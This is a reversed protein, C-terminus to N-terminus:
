RKYLYTFFRELTRLIELFVFLDMGFLMMLLVFMGLCDGDDIWYIYGANPTIGKRM